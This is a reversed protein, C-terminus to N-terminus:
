WRPRAPDSFAIPAALCNDPIGFADTLTVAHPRIEAFLEPVLRRITRAPGAEFVGNELFWATHKELLVLGHLARLRDLVEREEGNTRAVADRFARLTLVDVHAGALALLHEQVENAAITPDAKAAIRKQVRRAVSQLLMAERLELLALQRASARFTEESTDRSTIPNRLAVSDLFHSAVFRLAGREAIQKKFGTLLGKALLQMLVTNDGEFTTFVDTDARADALRNVSLYGQGGCAERCAQLAASVHWTAGAKLGAVEAELERTDDDPERALFRERVDDLAFHFAYAAALHPLLRRQHSPYDLLLTEPESAAGFQRRASAYRIAIALGLKAASMGSTAVAIRGGVLTGLMTFFRRSPSEIPSSYVGEASVSAYRGLLADRPITVHDFWIRGNDVGNLGLKHGVDGLRIGPLAEGKADRIPVVFAHVGHRQEGVELQAFVTAWRAHLAANGAWDKRASESPTHLVFHGEVEGSKPVWRVLTELDAVNSGHGVESMAFCGPAELSAVRPLYARQQEPTGLFYVSGGWLGFQVGFKVALSLDGLGLTEFTALFPGLGDAAECTVGPYALAGFGEKALEGLWAYVERRHTASDVGYLSRHQPAALFARARDRTGAFRGDLLEQVRSADFSPAPTTAPESVRALALETSSLGLTRELEDLAERADGDLAAISEAIGVLSRRAESSLTGVSSVIAERLKALTVADPPADALWAELAVRMRPKLWPQADIRAQIVRREDRGMSGDAWALYLLPLFPRLEPEHLLNELTMAAMM